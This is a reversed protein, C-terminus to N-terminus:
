PNRPSLRLEQGHTRVRIVGAKDTLIWRPASAVTRSWRVEGTHRDLLYLHDPEATFGYGCLVGAPVVVFTEANCVLPRSVWLYAGTDLDVAAVYANQGGTTRAYGRHASSIFLTNGVVGAWMLFTPAADPEANPPSLLGPFSVVRWPGPDGERFVAVSDGLISLWYGEQRVVRRTGWGRVPDPIDHLGPANVARGSVTLNHAEWWAQPPRYPKDREVVVTWGPLPAASGPTGAVRAWPFEPARVRRGDPALPPPPTPDFATDYTCDSPELCPHISQLLEELAADADSPDTARVVSSVALAAFILHM